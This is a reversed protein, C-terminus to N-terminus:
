GREEKRNNQLIRKKSERLSINFHHKSIEINYIEKSSVQKDKSLLEQLALITAKRCISNIQSGSFRETKEALKYLDIDKSFGINTLLDVM